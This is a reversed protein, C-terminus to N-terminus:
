YLVFLIIMLGTWSARERRSGSASAAAMPAQSAL